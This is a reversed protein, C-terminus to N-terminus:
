EHIDVIIPMHDSLEIWKKYEGITMSSSSILDESVFAYDIHYSEEIKRHLYFTPLSEEGQGQKLHYHYLSKIGMEELENVVDSHSWWGDPRDWIKNSNFDGIIITNDGKLDDRHIQLYKWFQGIYRFVRDETGKTWVALSTYKENIKFPVFQNLVKTNWAISKSKSTPLNIEFKGFWNELSVQNGKKPFIGIGKNKNQGQWIYNKGAWDQYAKNSHAPNECEQIVYIDGNLQDIRDLKNRLAGNCNWSILKM